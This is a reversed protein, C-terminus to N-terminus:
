NNEVTTKNRFLARVSFMWLICIVMFFYYVLNPNFLDVFLLFIAALAKATRYAFVDIVAKARFKEDLKMPLYLMERIISFISYDISKIYIFIYSAMFFSPRILYVIMNILLSLPILLHIRKVGLFNIIVFGGFLQLTMMILHVLSWLKGSYETRLDINPIAKQLAVSFQYDIFAISIQMFVVLSLVLLLYKSKKLDWFYGKDIKEEKVISGDFKSNKLAKLYFFFLLLYIPLTFLFLNKSGMKSAFFGPFVGGLISAIGGVAFIFGYLYKARQYPVSTHVLSWVQKYMFLVYIDKWIFQLFCIFPSYDIVFASLSNVVITFFTLSVWTRIPGFKPLFYNYAYVALFNLPVMAIWALPYNQAGFKALFYSISAPKTISYEIAICFICLMAFLIFIKDKRCFSKLEQKIKSFM